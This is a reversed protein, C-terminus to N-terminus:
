FLDEAYEQKDYSAVSLSPDQPSVPFVKAGAVAPTASNFIGGQEFARSGTKSFLKRNRDFKIRNM